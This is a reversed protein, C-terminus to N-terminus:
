ALRNKEFVTGFYPNDYISKAVYCHRKVLGFFKKVVVEEMASDPYCNAILEFCYLKGIDSEYNFDYPVGVKQNAIKVANEMGWVPRLVMIRDCHCFDIISIRNVSPSSAHIVTNDGVYLGAHSYGKEDPIFKGDLYEDYGRILVDGPQILEMIQLIDEGNVYAEDGDYLIVPILHGQTFIKVKSLWILFKSWLAYIYNKM